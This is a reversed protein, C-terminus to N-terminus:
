IRVGISFYLHLYGWVVRFSDKTFYFAEGASFSAPGIPTDLGVSFGAGHRLSAFKIAEPIEWTTGLDYRFSFYTDFLIDFPFKYRYELSGLVLQRGRSEDERM